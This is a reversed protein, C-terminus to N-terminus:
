QKAHMFVLCMRNEYECEVLVIEYIFSANFHLTGFRFGLGHWLLWTFIHGIYICVYLIIAKINLDFFSIFFFYINLKSTHTGKIFWKEGTTVCKAYRFLCVSNLVSYVSCQFWLKMKWWFRFVIYVVPFISLHVTSM